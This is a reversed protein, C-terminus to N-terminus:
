TLTGGYEKSLFWLPLSEPGTLSWPSGGPDRGRPAPIVWCGAASACPAPGACKSRCRTVLLMPVRLWRGAPRSARRYGSALAAASGMARAVRGATRVPRQPRRVRRNSWGRAITCRPEGLRARAAEECAVKPRPRRRRAPAPGRPHVEAPRTPEPPPTTRTSRCRPCTSGTRGLGAGALAALASRAQDPQRSVSPTSRSTRWRTRPSRGLAAGGCWSAGDAPPAGSEGRAVVQARPRAGPRGGAAVGDGLVLVDAPHRARSAPAHGRWLLARVDLTLFM